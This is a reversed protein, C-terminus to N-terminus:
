FRGLLIINHGQTSFTVSLLEGVCGGCAPEHHHHQLCLQHPETEYLLPGAGHPQLEPGFSDGFAPLRDSFGLLVFFMTAIIGNLTVLNKTM